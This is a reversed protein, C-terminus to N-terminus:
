LEHQRKEIGKLNSFALLNFGHLDKVDQQPKGPQLSDQSEVDAEQM